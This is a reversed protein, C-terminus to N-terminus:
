YDFILVLDRMGKFIYFFDNIKTIIELLEDKSLEFMKDLLEKNKTYFNQFKDLNQLM